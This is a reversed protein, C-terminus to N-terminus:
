KSRSPSISWRGGVPNPMGSVVSGFGCRSSAGATVYVSNDDHMSATLAAPSGSKMGIENNISRENIQEISVWYFHNDGARM